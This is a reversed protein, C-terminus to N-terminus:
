ESAINDLLIQNVYSNKLSLEEKKLSEIDAVLDLYALDTIM